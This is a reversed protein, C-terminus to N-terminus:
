ESKLDVVTGVLIRGARLTLDEVSLKEVIGGSSSGVVVPTLDLEARSVTDAPIPAQTPILATISPELTQVSVSASNRGYISSWGTIPVRWTSVVPSRHRHHSTQRVKREM